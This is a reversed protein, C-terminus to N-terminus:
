PLIENFIASIDRYGDIITQMVKACYQLKARSSPPPAEALHACPPEAELDIYKENAYDEEVFLTVREHLKLSSVGKM